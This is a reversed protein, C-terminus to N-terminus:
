CGGVTAVIDGSNGVCLEIKRLANLFHTRGRLGSTGFEVNLTAAFSMKGEDRIVTDKREFRGGM